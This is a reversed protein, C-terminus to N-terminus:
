GAAHCASLPEQRRQRTMSGAAMANSPPPGGATQGSKRRELVDTIQRALIAIYDDSVMTLHDGESQVIELGRVFCSGWGNTFDYGPVTEWEPAKARFLVGSADLPSPRWSNSMSRVLRMLSLQDIPAGDRGLFATPHSTPAPRFRNLVARPLRACLWWLLGTFDHLATAWRRARSRVGAGATAGQWIWKLSQVAPGRTSGNWDVARADILLVLEVKVGARQLARTAEVAIKGGLSYGAVICPSSGAHARLVDSYLASLQEISPQVAQGAASTTRYWEEPIPVDIAFVPHDGGILRGLRYEHHRAGMFYVPLGSHGPRLPVVQADPGFDQRQELARALQEITPNHFFAPVHLRAKLTRNIEGIVRVALLSHGGLDFFNDRLGITDRGLIEGWIRALVKETPTRPAPSAAATQHVAEDPRLLAKRDLKGNLTLPFAALPVFAAPIMTSPLTEGLALRLAAADMVFGAAPIVYAVLRPQGPQDERVVVVCREIGPQALLAAEIEGPEIRHGRLKVQHDLRGLFELSGDALRRVQDGTRYL